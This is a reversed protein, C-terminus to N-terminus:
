VASGGGYASLYARATQAIDYHERAYDFAADVQAFIEGTEYLRRAENIGAALGGVDDCAFTLGLRGGDLVEMPGEIASALVPVRAAMAEVITLGFGERRSPQILLDYRCLNEYIWRRDRAGMFRCKGGVGLSRVLAELHSCSEGEGVIDLSIQERALQALSLIALDQGKQEHDLRGIQIIKLGDAKCDKRLRLGEFSVGNLIVKCILGSREQIDAAVADSIAILCDFLELNETSLGTTHATFIYKSCRHFFRPFFRALSHNHCHVIDPAIQWLLFNARMFDVFNRSAPKRRIRHLKVDPHIRDILSLAVLDNVIILHVDSLAAQANVIDVLMSEAGGIGLSWIIHAVKM